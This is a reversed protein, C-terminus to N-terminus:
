RADRLRLIVIYWVHPKKPTNGVEKWSFPDPTAEGACDAVMAAEVAHKHEERLFWATSPARPILFFAAFAFLVTFLGELQSGSLRARSYSRM